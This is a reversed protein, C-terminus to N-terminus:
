HSISSKLRLRLFAIKELLFALAAFGLGMFYLYFAGQLHYLGLVVNTDDVAPEDNPREHNRSRQTANRFIERLWLDVLSNELLRQLLGNLQRFFPAGKRCGWTCGSDAYLQRSVYVPSNGFRDTYNAALLTKIYNRWTFFAHHGGLVRKMQEKLSLIELKTFVKKVDTNNSYRLWEWGLGYGPEIGWTWGKQSVLQQISDVPVSMQPVSLYAVLSSRYMSLALLSFVSWCLVWMRGTWKGPKRLPPQELLVGLTQLLSEVLSFSRTSLVLHSGRQLMWLAVGAVGCVGVVGAWVVPQLPKILALYQPLPSPKHSVMVLPEGAYTRMFQIIQSRLFSNFVCFSLDAEERAMEGVMGTWSGDTKKAGWEGDVPTRIEFTFNLRSAIERLMRLDLSDHPTVTAGATSADQDFEIFPFFPLAVVKLTHGNMNEAKETFLPAAELFGTHLDWTDVHHAEAMGGRCYLCRSYIHVVSHRAKRIADRNGGGEPVALLGDNAKLPAESAHSPSTPTNQDKTTVSTLPSTPALYLVHVTNRLIPHLLLQSAGEPPGVVVVRTEPQKWVEADHLFRMFGSADVDGGETVVILQCGQLHEEVLQMLLVEVRCDVSRKEELEMQWEVSSNVSMMRRLVGEYKDMYSLTMSIWTDTDGSSDVCTPGEVDYRSDHPAHPVAGYSRETYIVLLWAVAVLGPFSGM